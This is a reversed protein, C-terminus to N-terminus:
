WHGLLPPAHMRVLDRHIVPKPQGHLYRLALLIQMAAEARRAFTFDPRDLLEELTTPCYDTFIVLLDPSDAPPNLCVHRIPMIYRHSLRTMIAVERYIDVARNFDNKLICKAAMWTGDLGVKYVISFSGKGLFPQARWNPDYPINTPATVSLACMQDHFAQRRAEMQANMDMRQPPEQPSATAIGPLELTTPPPAVPNEDIPLPEPDLLGEASFASVPHASPAGFACGSAEALAPTCTALPRASTSGASSPSRASPSRTSTSTATARPSFTRSPPTASTSMALTQFKESLQDEDSSNTASESSGGESPQPTLGARISKPCHHHRRSTFPIGCRECIRIPDGGRGSRDIFFLETGYQAYIVIPADGQSTSLTKDECWGEKANTLIFVRKGDSIDRQLQDRTAERKEGLFHKLRGDLQKHQQRVM